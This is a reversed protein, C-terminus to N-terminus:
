DALRSPLFPLTKHSREWQTRHIYIFVKRLESRWRRRGSAGQEGYFIFSKLKKEASKKCGSIIEAGLEEHETLNRKSSEAIKRLKGVSETMQAIIAAPLVEISAKANCQMARVTCKLRRTVRECLRGTIQVKTCEKGTASDRSPSSLNFKLAVTPVAYIASSAIGHM